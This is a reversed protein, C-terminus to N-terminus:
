RVRLVSGLKKPACSHTPSKEIKGAHVLGCPGTALRQLAANGSQFGLDFAQSAQEFLLLAGALSL